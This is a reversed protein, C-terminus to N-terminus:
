VDMAANANVMEAVDNNEALTTEEDDTKL